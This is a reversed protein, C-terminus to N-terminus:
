PSRRQAQRAPLKRGRHEWKGRATIWVSLAILKFDLWLSQRRIYLLDFRFKQRRPISRRAYVQAVGTLGPRVRHRAEYGPITEIPAPEGNGGLEIEAPLLARPGVFSMDGKLINWLQPLEDLATARLFGGVRTVRADGPAAQLPGFRADSDPAMSRFKLSLFRRGGRGVRERAYLVPGGDELKVAAGVLLWLPASAALGAAALCADFARKLRPSRADRRATQIAVEEILDHHARVQGPRDFALAAKRANAGLREALGHDQRVALIKRALDDADGPRALLGCSYRQTIATVESAEETLAVYPRGAALIGYLKSPVVYGALGRKLSIVFVDATAFSEGLRSKPQYPLFRVNGLGESRARSELAERRAGDGVVALVVDRHPRLRDAATLLVDLDQSLGVNGSHMVVFVDALGHSLAFPNRKVGPVVAACDAWNHIVVVKGPDAGKDTVLRDRMTEGVAVIRDARRILLRNIRDLLRNVTESRFDDLLAAVEPFIDQCLLVFGARARRAAVLAALGIIPPDTLAVVVDPREVRLGAVCASFFYSLYNIFRGTFREPRLTTGATRLIEVGNLWERRFPIGRRPGGREGAGGTLAPGAVVSVRWGYDRVLDEALETLLQGTAGQDPHYSRNFFCIRFRAM